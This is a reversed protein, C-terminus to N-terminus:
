KEIITIDGPGPLGPPLLIGWFWGIRGYNFPNGLLQMWAVLNKYADNGRDLVGITSMFKTIFNAFANIFQLTKNELRNMAGDIGIIQKLKNKTDTLTNKIPTFLRDLDNEVQSKAKEKSKNILGKLGDPFERLLERTNKIGQTLEKWDKEELEQESM